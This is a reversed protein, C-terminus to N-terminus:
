QYELAGADRRSGTSSNGLFDRLFPGNFEWEYLEKITTEADNLTGKSIRLFDIRGSYYKNSVRGILFDASNSLSETTILHDGSWQGNALQGDLYINIGQPTSRDLETILHHWQGDNIPISSSRSYNKNSINITLVVHGGNDIELSYGNQASKSVIGGNTHGPDPSIVTEILFNGTTVDVTDRESATISGIINSRTKYKYGRKLTKDPLKCYQDIGNFRLVGAVWDELM